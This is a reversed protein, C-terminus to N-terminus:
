APVSRHGRLSALILAIASPVFFLGGEWTLLVCVPLLSVALGFRFTQTLRSWALGIALSAGLWGLVLPWSEPGVLVLILLCGAVALGAAAERMRKV